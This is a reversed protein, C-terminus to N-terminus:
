LNNITNQLKQMENIENELQQIQSSYPDWMNPSIPNQLYGERLKILCEIENQYCQM